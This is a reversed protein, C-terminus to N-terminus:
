RTNYYAGLLVLMEDETTVGGRLDCADCFGDGAGPTTDCSANRKTQTLGTCAQGVKGATCGSPIACPGGFPFGNPTPPSTSQRKVENPDTAGNDYLACYHLTRMAPDADDFALPPDFNLQIPDNYVTSVYSWTSGPPGTITFRKGRKHMHSS